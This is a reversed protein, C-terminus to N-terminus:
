SCGYRMAFILLSACRLIRAQISPLFVVHGWSTVEMAYLHSSSPSWSRPMVRSRAQPTGTGSSGFNIKGPREKAYAIFDRMNNPPFGGHAVLSYPVFTTLGIPVFDKLPDYIIPLGLAPASVMGGTTALLLTYGDPPSKAVGEISSVSGAGSRNDVVMQQGLVDHERERVVFAHGAQRQM